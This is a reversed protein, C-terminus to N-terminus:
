EADERDRSAVASLTARLHKLETNSKQAQSAFPGIKFQYKAYLEALVDRARDIASLDIEDTVEAANRQHPHAYRKTGVPLWKDLTVNSMGPLGTVTAVPEANRQESEALVEVIQGESDQRSVCVIQGEENKTVIVETRQKALEADISDSARLFDATKHLSASQNAVRMDYEARLFDRVQVLTMQKPTTTM